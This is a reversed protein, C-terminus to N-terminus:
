HIRDLPPVVSKGGGLIANILIENWCERNILITSQIRMQVLQLKKSNGENIISNFYLKQCMNMKYRYSNHNVKLFIREAVCM